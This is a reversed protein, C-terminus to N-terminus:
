DKGDVGILRFDKCVQLVEPPLEVENLIITALVRREKLLPINSGEINGTM